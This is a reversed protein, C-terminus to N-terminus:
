IMKALLLKLLEKIEGVDKEVKNLRDATLLVHSNCKKKKKYAALKGADVNLIAGSRPDKVLGPVDTKIYSSSNIV